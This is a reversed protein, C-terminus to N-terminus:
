LGTCGHRNTRVQSYLKDDPGPQSVICRFLFPDLFIKQKLYSDMTKPKDSFRWSTINNRDIKITQQPQSRFDPGAM